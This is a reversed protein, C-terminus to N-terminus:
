PTVDFNLTINTYEGKRLVTASFTKPTGEGQRRAEYSLIEGGNLRGAYRMGANLSERQYHRIVEEPEAIVTWTAVLGGTEPRSVAFERTGDTGLYVTFGAPLAPDTRSVPQKPAADETGSSGCAALLLLPALAILRMSMAM